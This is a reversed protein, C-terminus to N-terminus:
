FYHDLKFIRPKNNNLKWERNLTVEAMKIECCFTM